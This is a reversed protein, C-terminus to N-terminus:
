LKRDLSYLPEISRKDPIKGLSWGVETLVTWDTKPDQLKAHLLLVVSANGLTGVIRGLGM